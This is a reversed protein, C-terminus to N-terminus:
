LEVMFKDLALKIDIKGIKAATDLESLKRYAERLKEGSFNKLQSLGKKVVFPHLKAAKALAYENNGCSKKLDAIKLLNRFQYVFMSFLYFPDEGKQLHRHLLSVAEKKNGGALADITSFINSELNARVLIEVDEDKIIRGSAYDVLKKIEKDLFHTNNGAYLILKDLATKTIGSKEDIKKIRQAIWQGLKLGELKEFNQKKSIKELFKGLANNKKPQNGEWFVVVLDADKQLLEANKRLFDLTEEQESASGGAILKKVIVLRKPSLLNPTGLVDLLNGKREKEEYDFASLGSGFKDANLFKNKIESVKQSSRFSDEGYLFIIM